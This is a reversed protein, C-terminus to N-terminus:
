EFSLVRLENKLEGSRVHVIFVRRSWTPREGDLLQPLSRSDYDRATESVRMCDHDYLDAM